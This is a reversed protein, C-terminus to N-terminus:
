PTFFNEQDPIIEEKTIADIIYLLGQSNQIYFDETDPRPAIQLMRSGETTIIELTTSFTEVTEGEDPIEFARIDTLQRLYDQVKERDVVRNGIKWEDGDKIIEFSAQEKQIRVGEIESQSIEEVIRYFWKDDYVLGRLNKVIWVEQSGPKMIYTEPGNQWGSFEGLIKEGKRFTFFFLNNEDYGLDQAEPISLAAISFAKVKTVSDLLSQARSTAGPYKGVFWKGDRKELKVSNDRWRIEIVNVEEPDEFPVLRKKELIAEERERQLFQYFILVGILVFFFLGLIVTTKAKM